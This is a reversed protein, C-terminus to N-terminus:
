YAIQFSSTNLGMPIAASAYQIDQNDISNVPSNKTYKEHQAKFHDILHCNDHRWAENHMHPNKYHCSSDEHGYHRCYNCHKSTPTSTTTNAATNATATNFQSRSHSQHCCHGHSQQHLSSNNIDNNLILHYKVTEIHSLISKNLDYESIQGHLHSVPSAPPNSQNSNSQKMLELRLHLNDHKIEAKECEICSIQLKLQLENLTNFISQTITNQNFSEVGGAALIAAPGRM